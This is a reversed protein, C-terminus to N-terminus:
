FNPVFLVSKMSYQYQVVEFEKLTSVAEEGGIDASRTCCAYVSSIWPFLRALLHAHM